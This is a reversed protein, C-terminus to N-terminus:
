LRKGGSTRRDLDWLCESLRAGGQTLLLHVYHQPAPPQQQVTKTTHGPSHCAPLCAGQTSNSLLSQTHTHGRRPKNCRLSLDATHLHRRQRHLSPPVPQANGKRAHTLLWLLMSLTITTTASASSACCLPHVQTTTVHQNSAPHHILLLNSTARQHVSASYTTQALLRNATTSCARSTSPVANYYWPSPPIPPRLRKLHQLM